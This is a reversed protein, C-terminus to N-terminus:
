VAGRYGRPDIAASHFGSALLAGELSERAALARALEAPAVEVRAHTGECRVRVIGYGLARLAQESRHVRALREVTVATGAPLRSALCPQAPKDHNPLGFSLALRRAERKGMGADRLPHLIGRERAAAVGPRDGVPDDALLGDAVAALSHERASALLRDYMERRCHYCRDGKNARYAPDDIERTPVRLHPVGLVRAVAEAQLVEDEPVAPSCATAARVRGPLARAAAALLASSDVGGSLAVLLSPLAALREELLAARHAFLM